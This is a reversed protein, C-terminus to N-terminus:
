VRGVSGDPLRDFSVWRGNDLREHPLYNAKYAMSGCDAVYLGLYLWRLGWRRCLEFWTSHYPASYGPLAEM